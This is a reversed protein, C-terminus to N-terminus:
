SSLRFQNGGVHILFMKPPNGRHWPVFGKRKMWDAIAPHRLEPCKSWFGKTIRVPITKRDMQIVVVDWQRDFFRNANERGVSIGIAVPKRNDFKGNKWGSVEITSPPTEM